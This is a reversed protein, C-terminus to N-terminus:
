FVNGINQFGEGIVHRAESIIIFANKDLKRIFSILEGLERRRLVILLIKRDKQTYAGKGEIYTAGRKLEKLVFSAIEEHKDSIVMVQTSSEIGKLVFDIMMGNILIALVAYMGLKTGMVTGAFIAILLDAILLTTGMPAAFFKNFIRAVIDTGGTSANQTFTLAMGVATIIDGFLVAIILDDTFKPTPVIRDFFDVFFNLLFTCYITKLSFDKGVTIFGVLFLLANIIYMWVGVPLGVLKNLVIALGSAGGAAISNPILFSVVGIATIVVGLTALVYEKLIYKRSVNEGGCLFSKVM